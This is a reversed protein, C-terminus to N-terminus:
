RSANELRVCTEELMNVIQDVNQKRTKGEDKVRQEVNRVMSTFLDYIARESEEREKIESSLEQRVHDYFAATKTGLNDELEGHSSGIGHNEEKLNSIVEYSQQRFKQDLLETKSKHADVTGSIESIREHVIDNVKRGFDNKRQLEIKYFNEINTQHDKFDELKRVFGERLDARRKRMLDDTQDITLKLQEYEKDRNDIYSNLQNDFAEIQLWLMAMKESSATRISHPSLVNEKLESRTLLSHSFDLRPHM